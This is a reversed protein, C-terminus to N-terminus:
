RRSVRPKRETVLLLALAYNIKVGAATFSIPYHAICSWTGPPM